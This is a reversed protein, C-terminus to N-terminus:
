EAPRGAIVVTLPQSALLRRAVRAVDEVTVADIRDNRERVYDLGRGSVQLGLLESAISGNGDFRLPYAGTLYRKAAALEAETIGDRGMRAWEQRLVGVAEAVSDNGSTLSGLYLNGYNGSALGTQVGYTLGRSERIEHVLRSSFSGGGLVYDMVLAPMLDPDTVAIGSTGFVVASQPVDMDILTTGGALRPEVVDPFGSGTAPLDLFLRDLMAGTEEPGIAGVVVVRLRDRTLAEAWAARLGEETIAAVSEVTGALPRGYGHDPYAAAYFAQSAVTSPDTQGARITALVQGRLREVAEPDFRPETLASRLLTVTEDRTEALMTAWMMVADGSVGAGFQVALDDRATAFGAADLAGAGQGLLQTMLGTTGEHGAADLSGGGLFAAAVTIIPVTHEEYLWAEIGGPSTVPVVVIEAKAPAAAGALVALALAAARIM